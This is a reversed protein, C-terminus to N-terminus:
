YQHNQVELNGATVVLGASAIDVLVFSLLMLAQSIITIHAINRRGCHGLGYISKGLGVLISQRNHM